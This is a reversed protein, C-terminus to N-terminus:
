DESHNRRQGMTIVFNNRLKHAYKVKRFMDRNMTPKIANDSFMGNTIACRHFIKLSTIPDM